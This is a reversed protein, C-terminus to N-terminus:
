PLTRVVRGTADLFAIVPEGAQTIGIDIRTQGNMDVVHFGNARGNAKNVVM